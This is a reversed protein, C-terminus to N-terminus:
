FNEKQKKEALILLFRKAAQRWFSSEFPVAADNQCFGPGIRFINKRGYIVRRKTLQGTM